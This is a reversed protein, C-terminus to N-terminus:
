EVPAEQPQLLDTLARSAGRRHMLPVASGYVDLNSWLSEMEDRDIYVGHLPSYSRECACAEAVSSHEESSVLPPSESCDAAERASPEEKKTQAKLKKKGLKKV